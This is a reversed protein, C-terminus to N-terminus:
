RQRAPSTPRRALRYGLEMLYVAQEASRSLWASAHARAEDLTAPRQAIPLVAAFPAPREFGSSLAGALAVVPVGSRAARRAVGVPGKHRLSQADLEGEATVVLDAGTLAADFGVWDLVLDIGPVLEAGLLAALTAAIGGAAGGGALEAPNTGTEAAIVASLRELGRELLATAPADAGKQPGFVRAAGDPGLLPNDVDCAVLLRARRAPEFLASRDIRALESLGAGGRPIPRGGADLFRVGLAELLGAGGDVTASGGVGLLLSGAGSELAARVLEGTGYSTTALPRRESEALLALGSATAVDVVAADLRPLLGFKAEIPRGLPDHVGLAREEGGLLAVLVARTGDGGDAVPLELVSCDPSARRVGEAIARAADPAALSGKLANPAAVLRRLGV